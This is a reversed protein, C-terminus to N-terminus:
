RNKCSWCHVGHSFSQETLYILYLQASLGCQVRTHYMATSPLSWQWLELSFYLVEGTIECEKTERTWTFVRVAATCPTRFYNKRWKKRNSNDRETSLTFPGQPWLWVGATTEPLLARNQRIEWGLQDPQHQCVSFVLAGGPSVWTGKLISRM